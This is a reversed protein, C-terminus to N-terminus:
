HGSYDGYSPQSIFYLPSKLGADIVCQKAIPKDFEIKLSFTDSGTFHIGNSTLYDSLWVKPSNDYGLEPKLLVLKM